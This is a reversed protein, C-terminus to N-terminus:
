DYKVLDVPVAHPKARNKRYCLRDDPVSRM